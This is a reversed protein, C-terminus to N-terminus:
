NSYVDIYQPEKIFFKLVFSLLNDSERLIDNEVIADITRVIDDIKNLKKTLEAYMTQIKEDTNKLTDKKKTLGLMKVTHEKICDKKVNLCEVNLEQLNNMYNNKGIRKFVSVGANLCMYIIKQFLKFNKIFEKSIKVKKRCSKKYYAFIELTNVVDQSTIDIELNNKIQCVINEGIDRIDNIEDIKDDINQMKM